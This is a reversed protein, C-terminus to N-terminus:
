EPYLACANRLMKTASTVTAMLLISCTLKMWTACLGTVTDVARVEGVSDFNVLQYEDGPVLDISKSLLLVFDTVEHFGSAAVVAGSARYRGIRRMRTTM